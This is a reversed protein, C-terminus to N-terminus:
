CRVRSQNAWTQLITVSDPIRVMTWMFSGNFSDLPFGGAKDSPIKASFCTSSGQDFTKIPVSKFNTTNFGSEDCNVFFNMTNYGAVNIM